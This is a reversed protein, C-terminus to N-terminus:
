WVRVRGEPALYMGNGRNRIDMVGAAKQKFREAVADSCEPTDGMPEDLGLRRYKGAGLRHYKLIEIKVVNGLSMAFDLRNQIEREDDNIGPVLILRVIMEKGMDAIHRANELILHNDAGTHRKHIESDMAKIDYLVLDVARVLPGLTEWPVHGSTDLAVHISDAKLIETAELFFDAQLAAEGGSYTVGGGSQDYFAKDRLLKVAMEQASITFGVPEYADYFCAAARRDRDTCAACAGCKVCREPYHFFKPKTEMLEPNACWGCRLPCGVAFVTSRM